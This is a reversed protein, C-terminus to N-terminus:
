QLSGGFLSSAGVADTLMGEVFSHEDVVQIEVGSQFVQEARDRIAKRDSGFFVALM